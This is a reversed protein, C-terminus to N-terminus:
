LNSQVKFKGYSSTWSNGAIVVYAEVKWVGAQDLDGAITTYNIKGDSGDTVFSANKTLVSGDPKKLRIELTTAASIDLASAVCNSDNGQLTVQIVTGVDGVHADNVCAM